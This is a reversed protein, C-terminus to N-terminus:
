SQYKASNLYDVLIAKNQNRRVVWNHRVETETAEWPIDKRQDNMAESENIKGDDGDTKQKVEKEKGQRVDVLSTEIKYRQAVEQATFNVKM